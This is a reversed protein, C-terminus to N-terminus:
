YIQDDNYYMNFLVDDSSNEVTAKEEMEWQDLCKEHGHKWVRLRHENM